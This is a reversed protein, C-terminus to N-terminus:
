DALKITVARDLPAGKAGFDTLNSADIRADLQSESVGCKLLYNKVGDVRQNRLRTNIEETGTYNDAWGTLVYKQNPNEQMVQAVSKLITKERNSLSSQNIPYYITALGECNVVQQAPRALCADLQQQLSKIKNEAQNLRAVLADGEADTYKWTPCVATVPCNWDTKGFNINVGISASLDQNYNSFNIVEYQVDLFLDVHKSVTFNNQLGINAFMRTDHAARWRLEDKGDIEKYARRFTWYAGGGGHLVANYVRGPRYGCWWNTLNILIDFEPGVAMFKEPYFGPYDALEPENMKRFLGNAETVGKPMIWNAGFRFGFNPTVWKGVFLGANASFRDKLDAKIDYDSFLINTGGRVTMFWNDKNKNLLVGQSCDEVYTVEQASASNSAAGLALAAFALLVSKKM